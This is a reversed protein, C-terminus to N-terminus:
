PLLSKTKPQRLCVTCLLLLSAIQLQQSLSQACGLQDHLTYTIGAITRLSKYPCQMEPWYIWQFIFKLRLLLLTSRSISIHKSKYETVRRWQTGSSVRSSLTWRLMWEMVFLCMVVCLVTRVKYLTYPPKSLVMLCWGRYSMISRYGIFVVPWHSHSPELFIEWFKAVLGAAVYICQLDLIM